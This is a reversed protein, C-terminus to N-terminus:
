PETTTVPEGPAVDPEGESQEGQEIPVDVPQDEETLEEVGAEDTTFVLVKVYDVRTVAATPVASTRLSFGVEARAPEAVRAVSIGAPFRGDATVLLDGEVLSADTNFMELIMRSSGRGTLVGTEGTREVRVAIRFTPDTILRVRASGGTASVIRGILGGEDVVPMDVGVGDERGKDIVRIFDFESVGVALVQATVTDLEDPPDVGLIRELEEVRVELAATDQLEAELEAIRDRLQRNEDRLGVADSIAEFFDVVPSTVADFAEQVPTFAAQAGDRLTDGVGAGSARLDFTVLALSVVVLAIYIGTSREVGGPRWM